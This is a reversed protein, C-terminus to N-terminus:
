TPVGDDKADPRIDYADTTACGAVLAAAMMMGLFKMM